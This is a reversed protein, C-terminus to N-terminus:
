VSHAPGYAGEPCLGQQRTGTPSNFFETIMYIVRDRFGRASELPCGRMNSFHDLLQSAVHASPTTVSRTFSIREMCLIQISVQSSGISLISTARDSCKSWRCYINRPSKCSLTLFSFFDQHLHLMNRGPNTHFRQVRVFRSHCSRSMSILFRGAFVCAIMGDLVSASIWAVAVVVAAAVLNTPSVMKPHNQSWRMLVAARQPLHFSFM